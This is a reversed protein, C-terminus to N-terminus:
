SFRPFGIFIPCLLNRVLTPAATAAAASTTPSAAHLLSSAVPLPLPEAVVVLSAAASLVTEYGSVTDPM